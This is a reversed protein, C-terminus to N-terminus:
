AETTAPTPKASLHAVIVNRIHAARDEASLGKPAPLEGAEVAATMADLVKNVKNAHLRHPNAHGNLWLSVTVRSVGLLRGVENARLGAQRIVDFM